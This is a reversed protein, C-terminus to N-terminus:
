VHARGIKDQVWLNQFMTTGVTNEIMSLYNKKRLVKM